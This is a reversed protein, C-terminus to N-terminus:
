HQRRELETRILVSAWSRFPRWQEAIREMSALPPDAGLDYLDAMMALLRRERSPFVDPAGAGRVVILEASFDGIGPIRKVEEIAQEARMARLRAGDLIGDLAAGAVLNLREVARTMVGPFSRLELLRSPSPFAHVVEGHVEIEAGLEQAMREKARAAQTMRVRQSLIAWVAAEYPSFFCVPRLGPRAHQLGGIVADREGVRPWASGDVDLSFIRELQTQLAGPAADGTTEVAVRNGSGQLCVGAAEWDGEVPFALHLHDGQSGQLGAPAWRELWSRSQAFDFPGHATLSFSM